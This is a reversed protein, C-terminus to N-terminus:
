LIEKLIEDCVAYGKPTLKIIEDNMRLFDKKRLTELYPYKENLWGVGTYGFLQELRKKDLGSSRLELM